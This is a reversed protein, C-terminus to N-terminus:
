RRPWLGRAEREDAGGGSGGRICLAGESARLGQEHRGSFGIMQLAAGYSRLKDTVIVFSSKASKRARFVGQHLRCTM